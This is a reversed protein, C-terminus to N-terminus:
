NKIAHVTIPQYTVTTKGTTLCINVMQLSRIKEEAHTSYTDHLHPPLINYMDDVPRLAGLCMIFM